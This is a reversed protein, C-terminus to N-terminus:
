AAMSVVLLFVTSDFDRTRLLPQAAAREAAAHRVAQTRAVM